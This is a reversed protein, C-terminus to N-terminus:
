EAANQEIAEKKVDNEQPNGPNDPKEPNEPNDPVIPEAAERASGPLPLPAAPEPLSAAVEQLNVRHSDSKPSLVCYTLIALALSLAKLGFNRSFATVLSSFFGASRKRRKM